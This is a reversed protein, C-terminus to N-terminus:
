HVHAPPQRGAWPDRPGRGETARDRESQPVRRWRPSQGFPGGARLVEVGRRLGTWLANLEVFPRASRVLATELVASGRRVHESAGEVMADIREAQAVAKDTLEAASSTLRVLQAASADVQRQARDLLEETRNALKRGAILLGVFFVAQVLASVAIVGLFIRSWDDM